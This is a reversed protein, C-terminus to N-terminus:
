TRVSKFKGVTCLLATHMGEVMGYTGSVLYAMLVPSVQLVKTAEIEQTAKLVRLGLVM